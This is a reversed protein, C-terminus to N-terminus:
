LQNMSSGEKLNLALAARFKASKAHPNRALRKINGKGECSNGWYTGRNFPDFLRGFKYVM